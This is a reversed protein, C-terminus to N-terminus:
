YDRAINETHLEQDQRYNFGRIVKVAFEQQNAGFAGPNCGRAWRVRSVSENDSFGELNSVGRMRKCFYM